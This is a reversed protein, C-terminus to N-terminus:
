QLKIRKNYAKSSTNSKKNEIKYSNEFERGYFIGFINNTPNTYIEEM